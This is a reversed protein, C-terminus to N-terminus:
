ALRLAKWLATLHPWKSIERKKKNNMKKRKWLPQSKCIWFHPNYKLSLFGFYHHYSNHHTAKIKNENEQQKGNNIIINLQKNILWTCIMHNDINFIVTLISLETLKITKSLTNSLFFKHFNTKSLDNKKTNEWLWKKKCKTIHIM